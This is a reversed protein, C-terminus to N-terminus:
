TRHGFKQQAGQRSMNIAAGIITWSDGADRAAGVSEELEREAEDLASRAEVMRRFHAADRAKVSAPDLRDLGDSEASNRSKMVKMKM